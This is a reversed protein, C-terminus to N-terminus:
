NSLYKKKPTTEQIRKQEQEAKEVKEKLKDPITMLKEMDADSAKTQNIALGMSELEKLVEKFSKCTNEMEVVKQRKQDISLQDRNEEILFNYAIKNDTDVRLNIYNKQNPVKFLFSSQKEFDIVEMDEMVEYNMNKLGNILQSKLFENEKVRIYKEELLEKNEQNLFHCQAKFDEIKYDKITESELLETAYNLIKNKKDKLSNETESLNIEYVLDKIDNKFSQTKEAHNLNDLFEKYFYVDTLVESKKLQNLDVIYKERQKDDELIDIRHLIKSLLNNIEATPQIVEKKSETKSESVSEAFLKKAINNRIESATEEKKDIHEQVEQKSKEELKQFGFAFSKKQIDPKIKNIQSISDKVLEPQEEKINKALYESLNSKFHDFSQHANDFYKNYSVYSLYDQRKDLFDDKQRTLLKHVQKLNKLKLDVKNKIADYKEQQVTGKYGLNFAQLQKKVLDINEEAFATCDFKINLAKDNINFNKIENFLLEIQSQLFFIKKLNTDFVTVSFSKPGSM